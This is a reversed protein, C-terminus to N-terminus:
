ADWWFDNWIFHGLIDTDDSDDGTKCSVIYKTEDTEIQYWLKECDEMLTLADLKTTEMDKRILITDEYAGLVSQTGGTKCVKTPLSWRHGSSLNFLFSSPTDDHKLGSSVEFRESFYKSM